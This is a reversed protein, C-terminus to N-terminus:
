MGLREEVAITGGVVEDDDLLHLGRKACLRLQAEAHGAHTMRAGSTAMYTRLGGTLKSVLAAGGTSVATTTTAHRVSGMVLGM